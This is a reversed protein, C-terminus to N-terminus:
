SNLLINACFPYHFIKNLLTYFKIQIVFHLYFIYLIVLYTYHTNQKFKNSFKFLERIHTNNILVTILKLFLHHMHLLYKKKKKFFEHFQKRFIITCKFTCDIITSIKKKRKCYPYIPIFNFLSWQSLFKLFFFHVIQKFHKYAIIIICIKFM